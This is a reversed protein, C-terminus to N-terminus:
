VVLVDEYGRVVVPFLIGDGQTGGLLRYRLGLPHLALEVLMWAVGLLFPSFGIRRTLRAGGYAYASCVSVLLLVTAPTSVLGRAAMAAGCACVSLAFVAGGVMAWVPRAVQIVRFLPLLAVLGLWPYRGSEAAAAMVCGCLILSLFLPLEPRRGARLCERRGGIRRRFRRSTTRSIGPDQRVMGQKEPWQVASIVVYPALARSRWLAFRAAFRSWRHDALPHRLRRDVCVEHWEGDSSMVRSPSRGFPAVGVGVPSSPAPRLLSGCYEIQLCRLGFSASGRRPTVSM